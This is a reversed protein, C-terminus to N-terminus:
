EAACRRVPPRGTQAREALAQAFGGMIDLVRSIASAAESYQQLVDESFVLTRAAQHIADCAKREAGRDLQFDNELHRPYSLSRSAPVWPRAPSPARISVIGCAQGPHGCANDLWSRQQSSYRPRQTGARCPSCRSYSPHQAVEAISLVGPRR